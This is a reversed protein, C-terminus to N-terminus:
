GNCIHRCLTNVYALGVVGFTPGCATFLQHSAFTPVTGAQVAKLIKDLKYECADVSTPCPEFKATSTEMELYGIKLKFNMQKEYVFSAEIVISELTTQLASADNNKWSYSAQDSAIAVSMENM